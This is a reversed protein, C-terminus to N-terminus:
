REGSSLTHEMTKTTFMIGPLEMKLKNKIKSMELQSSTVEIQEYPEETTMNVGLDHTVKIIEEGDDNLKVYTKRINYIAEYPKTAEMGVDLGPNEENLKRIGEEISMGPELRIKFTTRKIEETKQREPNLKVILYRNRNPLYKREKISFNASIPKYYFDQYVKTESKIPVDITGLIDGVELNKTQGGKQIECNPIIKLQIDAREKIKGLYKLGKAPIMDITKLYLNITEEDSLNKLMEEAQEEAQSPNIGQNILKSSLSQTLITRISIVKESPVTGKLEEYDVVLLSKLYNILDIEGMQTLKELMVKKDEETGGEVLNSILANAMKTWSEKQQTIGWEDRIKATRKITANIFDWLDQDVDYQGESNVRISNITNIAARGYNEERIQNVFNNYIKNKVNEYDFPKKECIKKITYEIWKDDMIDTQTIGHESAYKKLDRIDSVVYQSKDALRAGQPVIGRGRKTDNKRSHGAIAESIEKIKHRIAKEVDGADMRNENFKRTINNFIKEKSNKCIRILVDKGNEDHTFNGIKDQLVKEMLHSLPVHGIDHALAAIMATLQEEFTANVQLSKCTLGTALMVQQSHSLRNTIARDPAYYNRNLFETLINDVSNYNESSLLICFMDELSINETEPKKYQGKKIEEVKRILYNFDKFNDLNTLTKKDYRHLVQGKESLKSFEISNLIESLIACSIIEGETLEQEQIEKKTRAYKSLMNRQIQGPFSLKIVDLIRNLNEPDGHKTEFEIEPKIAHVDGNKDIGQLEDMAMEIITGDECTLDMKNRNNIVTLIESMDEPLKLEPYEEKLLNVATELSIKQGEQLFEEPVTIEYEQRQKYETSSVVPIKCTIQVKDKKRRIRFSGGNKELSGNQDDFYTDEQHVIKGEKPISFKSERLVSIIQETTLERTPVLKLENEINM